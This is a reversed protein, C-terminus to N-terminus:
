AGVPADYGAPLGACHPTPPVRRAWGAWIRFYHQPPRRQPPGFSISWSEAGCKICYSRPPGWPPLKHAGSLSKRRPTVWRHQHEMAM